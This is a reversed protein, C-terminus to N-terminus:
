LSKIEVKIIRPNPEGHKIKLESVNPKRAKSLQIKAEKKTPYIYYGWYDNIQIEDWYVIAWGIKQKM